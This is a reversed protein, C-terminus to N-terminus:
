REKLIPNLFKIFFLIAIVTTISACLWISRYGLLNITFGVSLNVFFMSLSTLATMASYFTSRKADPIIDQIWVATNNNEFGLGLECIFILIIYIIQNKTM